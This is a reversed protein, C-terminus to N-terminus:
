QKQYIEQQESRPSGYNNLESQGIYIQENPNSQLGSLVHTSQINLDQYLKKNHTHNEYEPIPNFM